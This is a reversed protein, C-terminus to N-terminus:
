RLFERAVKEHPVYSKRVRGRAENIRKIVDSRLEPESILLEKLGTIEERLEVLEDHLKKLTVSVLEVVM